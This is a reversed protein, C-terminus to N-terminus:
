DVGPRVMLPAPPNLYYEFMLVGNEYPFPKGTSACIPITPLYRPVLAELTPPFAGTEARHRAMATCLRLADLLAIEWCEMGYRIAALQFTDSRRDIMTRLSPSQIQEWVPLPELSLLTLGAEGCEKLLGTVLLTRSKLHRWQPKQRMTRTPEDVDAILGVEEHCLNARLRDVMRIRHEKLLNLGAAMTRLDARTYSGHALCDIWSELPELISPGETMHWGGFGRNFELIIGAATLIREPSISEVKSWDLFVQSYKYDAMEFDSYEGSDLDAMLKISAGDLDLFYQMLWNLDGGPDVEGASRIFDLARRHFEVARLKDRQTNLTARLDAIDRIVRERQEEFASVARWWAWGATAAILPVLSLLATLAKRKKGM